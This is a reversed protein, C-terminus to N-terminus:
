WGRGLFAVILFNIAFILFARLFAQIKAHLRIYYNLLRPAPSIKASDISIIPTDGLPLAVSESETM